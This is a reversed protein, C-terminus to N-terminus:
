ALLTRHNYRTPTRILTNERIFRSAAANVAFREIPSQTFHLIPIRVRLDLYNDEVRLPYIASFGGVTGDGLVNVSTEPVGAKKAVASWIM